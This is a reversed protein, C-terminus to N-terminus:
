KNNKRLTFSNYVFESFLLSIEADGNFCTILFEFKNHLDMTSFSPIFQAIKSYMHERIKSNLECSTVFHIEDDISQNNCSHCFRQDAPIKPRSYRGKEIYLNHASVRLRTVYQRKEKSKIQLLYKELEFEHKFTGYLRLKGGSQSIDNHWNEVYLDSFYRHADYVLFM